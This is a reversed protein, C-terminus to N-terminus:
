LFILRHNDVLPSNIIRGLASREIIIATTQKINSFSSLASNCYNVAMRRKKRIFISFALVSANYKLHGFWLLPLE